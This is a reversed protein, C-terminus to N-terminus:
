PSTQEKHPATIKGLSASIKQLFIHKITHVGGEAFDCICQGEGRCRQLLKESSDTISDGLGYNENEGFLVQSLVRMNHM